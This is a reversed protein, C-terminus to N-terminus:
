QWEKKIPLAAILSSNETKPTRPTNMKPAKRWLFIATSTMMAIRRVTTALM